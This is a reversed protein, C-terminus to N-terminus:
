WSPDIWIGINENAAYIKEPIVKYEKWYIPRKFGENLLKSLKTNYEAKLTVIPIYLKAYTITFTEANGSSSLICNECWKLSLEVKCNILPM